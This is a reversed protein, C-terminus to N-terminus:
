REDTSEPEPDMSAALVLARDITGSTESWLEVKPICKRDCRIQFSYRAQPLLEEALFVAFNGGPQGGESLTLRQSNSTSVSVISGGVFRIRIRANRETGTGSNMLSGAFVIGPTSDEETNFFLIPLAVNEVEEPGSIHTLKVARRTQGEWNEDPFESRDHRVVVVKTKPEAPAEPIWKRVARDAWGFLDVNSTFIARLALAAVLIVILGMVARGLWVDM